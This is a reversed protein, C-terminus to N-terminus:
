APVEENDELEVNEQEAKALIAALRARNATLTADKEAVEADNATQEETLREKEMLLNARAAEDEAIDSRLKAVSGQFLVPKTAEAEITVEKTVPDITITESM